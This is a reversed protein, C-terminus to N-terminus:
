VLEEELETTHGLPLDLEQIENAYAPWYDSAACDAWTKLLEVYEKRGRAMSVDSIRYLAVAWPAKNEVAVIIHHEAKTGLAECADSYIAGQRHMGYKVAQWKFGEPSADACSKLDLTANFEPIVADIRVKMREGTTSERFIGSLEKASAAMILKLATPHSIVANAMCMACAQEDATLITKHVNKAKWEARAAVSGTGSFEPQTVYRAAFQDPELVLCHFASGIRMARTQENEQLAQRCHAPSRKLRSLLSSSPLDLAHYEEASMEPHWGVSVDTDLIQTLNISAEM